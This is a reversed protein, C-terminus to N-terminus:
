PQVKSMEKISEELLGRHDEANLQRAMIKGALLTALDLTRDALAHVADDRAIGIERKARGIMEEAEKRADDHIRRRAAEADRKGEEVIATAEVRAKEIRETYEKLLREAETREKSASELSTRIFDERRQLASLIPKWAFRKLVALLLFFIALTWIVNGLDGSLISPTAEGHPDAGFAPTATASFAFTIALAGRNLSLRSRGM